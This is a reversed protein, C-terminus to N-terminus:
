KNPPAAKLANYIDIGFQIHAGPSYHTQDGLLPYSDTNILIANNAANAAYADQAARVASRYPFTPTNIRAIVKKYNTLPTSINNLQWQSQIWTHFDDFFNKLNAGYANAHVNNLADSEGNVVIIGKLELPKGVTKETAAELAQSLYLKFTNNSYGGGNAPNWDVAMTTGAVAYQFIYPQIPGLEENLKKVFSTQVGFDDDYMGNVIATNVGPTMQAWKNTSHRTDYIQANMPVNYIAKQDAPLAGIRNWGVNSQGIVIYFPTNGLNKLPAEPDGWAQIETIRAYGDVTRTVSVRIRTTSIPPFTFKRWVKNNGVVKGNPVTVWASGNWTQVEFDVIGLSAFTMAETPELPNANNDQNTFVDIQRINKAANFAIQIWQPNSNDVAVAWIGGNVGTREDNITRTPTYKGLYASATAISGRAALAVNTMTETPAPKTTDTPTPTKSTTDPNTKTTTDTPTGGTGGSSFVELEAIRTAGDATALVLVRLQSTSIPAFTIKTWVKNNGRIAGGPVTVWSSGNWTQVDFDKLGYNTFTMAETPEVPSSYNDQISFVNVLSVTKSGSFNVQLWDPFTGRTNDNWWNVGKRDGDNAYPGWYANSNDHNSSTSIVGGNTSRAINVTPETTGPDIPTSAGPTFAEVEAIRTKGDATALVSIRIKTTTIDPFTIKTWIKNSGRVAGGPVTVWASGSWTQIDFDKIGYNNFTIAETPEAPSSYNDQITFVNILNITKSGSFSIEIWDPFASQTNDNWWVTGKREGDNAHPGHYASSNDHNSSTTAVGGNSSRAVNVQATVALTSLLLLLPTLLHRILQLLYSSGTATTLTPSYM